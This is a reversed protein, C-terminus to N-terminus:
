ELWREMVWAGRDGYYLPLVIHGKTNTTYVNAASVATVLQCRERTWYQPPYAKVRWLKEINTRGNIDIPRMMTEGTLPVPQGAYVATIMRAETVQDYDAGLTNVPSGWGNAASAATLWAMKQKVSYSTNNVVDAVQMSAIKKLDDGTIKTALSNEAWSKVWTGDPHTLYLPCMAFQGVPEGTAPNLRNPTGYGDALAVPSDWRILTRFLQSPPPIPSTVPNTFTINIKM